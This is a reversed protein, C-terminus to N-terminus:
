FRIKPKVRVSMNDPILFEMIELLTVDKKAILEDWINMNHHPFYFEGNEIISFYDRTFVNIRRLGSTGRIVYLARAGTLKECATLYWASTNIINIMSSILERNSQNVGDKEKFIRLLADEFDKDQVIECGHSKRTILYNTYHRLYNDSEYSTVPYDYQLREFSIQNGDSLNDRDFLKDWLINPYFDNYQALWHRYENMLEKTEMCQVCSIYKYEVFKFSAGLHIERRHVLILTRM